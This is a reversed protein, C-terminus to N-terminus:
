GAQRPPPASAAADVFPNEHPATPPASGSAAGASEEGSASEPSWVAETVDLVVADLGVMPLAVWFVFGCLAISLASCGLHCLTIMVGFFRDTKAAKSVKAVAFLFAIPAALWYSAGLFAYGLFMVTAIALLVRLELVAGERFSPIERGFVATCMQLSLVSAAFAVLGFVAAVAVLPGHFPELAFSSFL